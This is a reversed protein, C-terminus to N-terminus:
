RGRDFPIERERRAVPMSEARQTKRRDGRGATAIDMPGARARFWLRSHAPKARGTSSNSM